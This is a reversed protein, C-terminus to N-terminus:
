NEKLWKVIPEVALINTPYQPSSKGAVETSYQLVRQQVEKPALKPLHVCIADLVKKQDATPVPVSDSETPTPLNDRKSVEPVKVDLKDQEQFLWNFIEDAYKKLYEIDVGTGQFIYSTCNAATQRASLHDKKAWVLPDIEAM